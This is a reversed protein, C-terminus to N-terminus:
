TSHLTTKSRHTQLLGRIGSSKRPHSDCPTRLLQGHRKYYETNPSGSLITRLTSSVKLKKSKWREALRRPPRSPAVCPTWASPAFHVVVLAFRKLFRTSARSTLYM